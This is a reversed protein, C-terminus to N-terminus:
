TTSAELIHATSRQQGAPLEVISGARRVSASAFGADRLAAEAEAADDFHLYVQGRGFAALLRRFFRVAPTQ